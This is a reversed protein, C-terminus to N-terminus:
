PDVHRHVRVLRRHGALHVVLLAFFNACANRFPWGCRAAMAVVRNL